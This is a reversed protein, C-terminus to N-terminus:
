PPKAMVLSLCFIYVNCTINLLSIFISEINSGICLFVLLKCLRFCLRLEATCKSCLQDADKNESCPYYLGEEEYIQFKWGRVMKQSQVAQNTDSRTLVWITPKRM